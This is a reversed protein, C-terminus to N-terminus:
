GHDAGALDLRLIRISASYREDVTQNLSASFRKHWQPQQMSM